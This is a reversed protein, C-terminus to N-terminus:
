GVALFCNVLGNAKDAFNYASGQRFRAAYDDPTATKCKEVDDTGPVQRALRVSSSMCHSDYVFTAGTKTYCNGVTLNPAGCSRATVFDGDHYGHTLITVQSPECDVEKGTGTVIESVVVKTTATPRACDAVEIPGQLVLGTAETCRGVEPLVLPEGSRTISGLGFILAVGAFGGVLVVAGVIVVAMLAPPM